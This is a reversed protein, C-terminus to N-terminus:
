YEEEDLGEESFFALAEYVSHYSKDLGLKTKEDRRILIEFKSEYINNLTIKLLSEIKLYLKEIEELDIIRNKGGTYYSSKFSTTTIGNLKNTFYSYYALDSLTLDSRVKSLIYSYLVLQFLSLSDFSIESNDNLLLTDVLEEIKSINFAPRGGTKYDIISYTNNANIKILDAIGRFSEIEIPKEIILELSDSQEELDIILNIADVIVNKHKKIYFLTKIILKDNSNVKNKFYINYFDDFFLEIDFEKNSYEIIIDFILKHIEEDYNFKIDNGSKSRDVKSEFFILLVVEVLSHFFNGVNLNISEKFTSLGLIKELYYVFPLQYYSTVDTPSLKLNKNKLYNSIIERECTELKFSPDFTTQLIDGKKSSFYAKYYDKAYGSELKVESVLSVDELKSFIDSPGYESELDRKAYSIHKVQNLSLLEKLYSNKSSNVISSTPYNILDKDSDSLYDSDKTLIPFMEYAANIIFVHSKDNLTIIEDLDIIKITNLLKNNNSITKNKVDEKIVKLLVDESYTKKLYKNFINIVENINENFEDRSANYSQEFHTKLLNDDSLLKIIDQYSYTFLKNIYPINMLSINLNINVNINYYTSLKNFLTFYSDNYNSIYIDNIDVNNNILKSIEEFLYFVEDEKTQFILGKINNSGKINIKNVNLNYKNVFPDILYTSGIINFTYKNLNNMFTQNVNFYKNNNLYFQNLEENINNLNYKTFNILERTISVPRELTELNNLYIENSYSFSLLEVLENVTLLKFKYVSKKEQELKSKIKIFNTKSKNPVVLFTDIKNSVEFIEKFNM